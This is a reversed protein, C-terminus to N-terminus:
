IPCVGQFYSRGCGQCLSIQIVSTLPCPVTLFDSCPGCEHKAKLSIGTHAISSDSVAHVLYAEKQKFKYAINLMVINPPLAGTYLSPNPNHHTVSPFFAMVASLLKITTFRNNKYPKYRFVIYVSFHFNNM